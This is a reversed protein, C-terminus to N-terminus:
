DHRNLLDSIAETGTPLLRLRTLRRVNPRGRLAAGVLISRQSYRGSCVAKRARVSDELTMGTALGSAIAASLMCGTGHLDVNPVRDERFAIVLGDDDLM